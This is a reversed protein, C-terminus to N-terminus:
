KDLFRFLWGLPNSGEEKKKEIVEIMKDTEEINELSKSNEKYYYLNELAGAYDKMKYQCKANLFAFEINNDEATATDLYRQATDYEKMNMYIEVLKKTTNIYDIKNEFLTHYYDAANDFEGIKEHLNALKKIVEFDDKKYSHAQTYENIAEDLEDKLEFFIGYNYHSLHNDGQAEYMQALKRYGLPSNPLKQIIRSCYTKAKEFDSTYTYYGALATLVETSNGDQAEASLLIEKTKELNDLHLYVKALNVKNEVDNNLEVLKEYYGQAKSYEEMDIYTDALLQMAEVNEPYVHLARKLVNIAAPQNNLEIYIEALELFIKFNEETASLIFIYEDLAQETKGTQRYLKALQYRVQLNDEDKETLALAKKYNKEAGDFDDELMALKARNLRYMMPNTNEYISTLQKLAIINEPQQSLISNYAEVAEDFKQLICCAHAYRECIDVDNKNNEYQKKYIEYVKDYKDGAEYVMLIRDAFEPPLNTGFVKDYLEAAMVFDGEAEKIQALIFMAQSHEPNVKLFEDLFRKAGEVDGKALYPKVNEISNIENLTIEGTNSNEM